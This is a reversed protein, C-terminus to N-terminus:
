RASADIDEEDEEDEEEEETQRLKALEVQARELIKRKHIELDRQFEKRMRDLEALQQRKNNEMREYIEGFRKISDALMRFSASGPVGLGKTMKPPLGDSDDDDDEDNDTGTEGPSDRMEDRGNSRNLYASPRPPAPPQWSPQPQMQPPLPPPPSPASMLFDMKKFYVWKSNPNMSEAMSAKEKKYKKKLTDVRNRCQTDSRATRSSQSVKKAVESWEESRLSKRGNQVYLEGWAELLAFTSEESWDAPSNRAPPPPPPRAAAAAAAARPAFEFGLALKDLRRRKGRSESSSSDEDDGRMRRYGRDGDSDSESDEIARDPEDDDYAAPPPSPPNRFPIKPRHSSPPFSRRPNPPYRADDETDDM